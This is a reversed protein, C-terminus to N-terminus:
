TELAVSRSGRPAAPVAVAVAESDGTAEPMGFTEVSGALRDCAETGPMALVPCGGASGAVAAVAAAAAASAARDVM